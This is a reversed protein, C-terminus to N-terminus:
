NIQKWLQIGDKDDLNDVYQQILSLMTNNEMRLVELLPVLVFAREYMRPHPLQLEDTHTEEQDYRLLDLDLTRPGWYHERTRGLMNEIRQLTYLLQISTYSTQISIVMNLFLPQETFGIPKTEYMNSQIINDIHPDQQMMAIAQTLFYERDEINSGLSM